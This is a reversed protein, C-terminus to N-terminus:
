VAKAATEIIDAIERSQSVCIAHAEQLKWSRQILVGSLRGDGCSQRM